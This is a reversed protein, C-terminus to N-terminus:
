KSSNLLEMLQDTTLPKSLYGNAGFAQSQNEKETDHYGTVMYVRANPHLKKIEQLVGFGDLRSNKLQIDLFIVDPKHSSIVQLAEDSDKATWCPTGQADFFMKVIESTEPEDDVLLLSKSM